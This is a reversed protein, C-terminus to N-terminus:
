RQLEFVETTTNPLRTAWQYGSHELYQSIGTRDIDLVVSKKHKSNYASVLGKKYFDDDISIQQVQHVASLFEQLKRYAGSHVLWFFSIYVM